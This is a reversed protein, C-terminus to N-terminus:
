FTAEKPTVEESTYLLAFSLNQFVLPLSFHTFLSTSLHPTNHTEIEKEGETQFKLKESRWELAIIEETSVVERSHWTPELSLIKEM